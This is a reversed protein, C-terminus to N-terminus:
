ATRGHMSLISCRRDRSHRTVPLTLVSPHIQAGYLVSELIYAAIVLKETTYLSPPIQPANSNNSWLGESSDSM